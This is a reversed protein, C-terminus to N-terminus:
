PPRIPSSWRNCSPRWGNASWTSRMASVSTSSPAGTEVVSRAAIWAARAAVSDGSRTASSVASSSGRTSTTSAISASPRTAADGPGAARASSWSSARLKRTRTSFAARVVTGSAIVLTDFIDSFRRVDLVRVNVAKLDGLAAAVLLEVAIGAADVLMRRRKDPFASAASADVYPVPLLLMFSVGMEHVEGGFTRVTYAHALEHLAKILPYCLWLLLLYRPTLTYSAAHRILEDSHTFAVLAASLVLALWLLGTAPRLAWRLAPLSRILFADPDWLPVRFSLPNLMAARHQRRSADRRRLIAASEPPLECQVLSADILQSLIHILEDQGPTDDGLTAFLAQWLADVSREGDMRAVFEYALANLRHHRGSLQDQLVFWREGRYVHRLVRVHPGLQPQLDAVRYWHQSHLSEM